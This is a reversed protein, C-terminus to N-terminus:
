PLHFELIETRQFWKFNDDSILTARIRGDPTRTVSLGEHNDFQGRQTQLLIQPYAWNGPRIRSIRTSFFAHRFERELLYFNGDPGFDAGVVMFNGRQPVHGIVSWEGGDLRFVAFSGEQPAEPLTHLRGGPDIALAELSQNAPFTRFDSHLPLDRAAGSATAYAAVRAQTGGEFAIFITGDRGMAIGEADARRLPLPAADTDKLVHIQAVDIGTIRDDTGRLFRGQWLTGRDSLAWFDLGNEAVHVGSFGGFNPSSHTWVFRGRFAAQGFDAGSPDGQVTTIQCAGLLAPAGLLRIAARRTMM